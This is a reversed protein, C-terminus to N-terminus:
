FWGTSLSKANFLAVMQMTKLDSLGGQPPQQMEDNKIPFLISCSQKKKGERNLSVAFGANLIKTKTFNDKAKVFIYLMSDGNTISYQIGTKNDTFPLSQQWDNDLGDITVVKEQWLAFANKSDSPNQGKSNNIFILLVIAPLLLRKSATNPKM